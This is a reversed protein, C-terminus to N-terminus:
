NTFLGMELFLTSLLQFLCPGDIELRWVYGCMYVHIGIWLNVCECSCLCASMCGFTSLKEMNQKRISSTPVPYFYGSSFTSIFAYPLIKTPCMCMADHSVCYQYRIYGSLMAEGLHHQFCEHFSWVLMMPCKFRCRPHQAPDM